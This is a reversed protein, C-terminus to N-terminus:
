KNLAGIADLRQIEAADYGTVGDGTNYIDANFEGQASLAYKQSNALYQLIRVSDSISVNKDDNADGLLSNFVDIHANGVSVSGISLSSNYKPTVELGLDKAINISVQSHEYATVNEDPILCVTPYSFFYPYKGDADVYATYEFPLIDENEFEMIKKEETNFTVVSFSLNNDKIYDTLKKVTEDANKPNLKYGTLYPEVNLYYLSYTSNQYDFASILNKEKLGNCINRIETGTADYNDTNAVINYGNVDYGSTITYDPYNEQMYKAVEAINDSTMYLSMGDYVAVINDRINDVSQFARVKIGDFDDFAYIGWEKYDTEYLESIAAEIDESSVNGLANAGIPSLCAVATIASLIIALNKKMM